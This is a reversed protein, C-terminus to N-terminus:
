LAPHAEASPASADLIIEGIHSRVSVIMDGGYQSRWEAGMRELELAADRSELLAVVIITRDDVKGIRYSIFGPIGRLRPVLTEEAKRTLTDITGPKCEQVLARMYSM